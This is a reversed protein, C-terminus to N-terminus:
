AAGYPSLIGGSRKQNQLEKQVAAAIANGLNAGQQGNSQSNQQANGNSDVSVNVTVNNQQGAGKLDVPISRNNPLPVVAETGHLIAPYGADSGRAVGGMSYGPMKKGQSLVGGSRAEEIVGGYRSKPIGLFNGFSTGGLAATLLKAVLLESIVKAIAKLMSKAMNGFAEKATMTGQILGDFASQMSSALSDGVAIGLQGIETANTSAVTAKEELLAIERQRRAVEQQHLLLEDGALNQGALQYQQLLATKERVAIVAEQAAFDLGQQRGVAGPARSQKVQTIQLASKDDAISEMELRVRQLSALLGKADTGANENLLDLLGGERALTIAAADGAKAAAILQKLLIEAGLPDGTGIDQRLSASADKISALSANFTTAAASLEQIKPINNEAVATAFPIGLASLDVDGLIEEFIKGFDGSEAAKKLAGEIPLTAIATAIQQTKRFPDEQDKIGATITDIETRLEAYRDRLNAVAEEQAQQARTNDEIGQLGERDLGFVALAKEELANLKTDIDDAFTFRGIVREGEEIGLLRRVVSNDLLANLGDAFLNLAIQLGKALGSLFSKFGDIVTIPTTALKEFATIIASVVGAVLFLKTAIKTMGKIAGGAIRAGKGVLIFAQGTRKAARSVKDLANVTTKGFSKQIKEKTSLTTKGIKEIEAELDDVAELTAGAFAGKAVEGTDQLEKRVRQLDKKLRGLARPTVEEGAALKGVTVSSVGGAQLKGAAGKVNAGGLKELRETLELEAFEIEYVAAKAARSIGSGVAETLGTFTDRISRSSSMFGSGLGVMVSKLAPGLGAINALIITALAGFAVAAATANQNIVNAFATFAPLLKTQIKQIIDEFTKSLIIFPNVYTDQDGFTANLQRMTENFVAQSREAATLQDKSKGIADGYRQTAEELRLTIGLEDLLEPEAKSVGRLLRDFTDDFGRGLAGAAKAAGETLQELQLGSFGKAVGIAAAQAAEQFGLMGGSAERLQRTLSKIALGSSQAFNVQSKRLNELDAARKLFGFAATLAFVQAAFAAYAPVLGGTMGQAMKSFNKTGNASAQAAGKLNRDFTRSSNSAKDLGQAAKKSALAVKKTTGKDDVRVDIEIKNKAM